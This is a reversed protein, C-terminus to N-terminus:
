KWAIVFHKDVATALLDVIVEELQVDLGECVGCMHLYAHFMEHLLTIRKVEPKKISSSIWIVKNIHDHLGSIEVGKYVLKKKQRISYEAGKITVKRPLRFRKIAM